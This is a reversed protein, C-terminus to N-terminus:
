YTALFDLIKSIYRLKYRKLKKKFEKRQDKSSRKAGNSVKPNNSRSNTFPKIIEKQFM